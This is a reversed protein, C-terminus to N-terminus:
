FTYIVENGRVGGLYVTQEKLKSNDIVLQQFYGRSGIRKGGVDYKRRKTRDRLSEQIDIVKDDM